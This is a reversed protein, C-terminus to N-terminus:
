VQQAGRDKLGKVIHKVDQARDKPTVLVADETVVVVADELGVVGVAMKGPTANYVVCRKCDYLIPEGVAFNGSSDADDETQLAPWAGVDEWPFAGRVMLVKRAHEMLAYDISIDEIGEFIEDCEVERGSRMAGVLERAARAINPRAHELERLFSGATWFFMGSNWFYRGSAVYKQALSVDPKEKFGSVPYVPVGERFNEIGRTEDAVEIYGFGTEARNPVIGCVVLAHETEAARMATDVTRAFIEPEGIRHDATAVALSVEGPSLEPHRALIAATAYALAGSTNRKCPEALINERRLGTNAQQIPEVLHRGTIVYVQEAPIVPALREVSEELMTKTPHTLPLLQKPRQMRSLPWFREGAGGAMIIGFRKM